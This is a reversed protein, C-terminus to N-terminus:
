SVIFFLVYGRGTVQAPRRLLHFHGQECSGERSLRQHQDRKMTFFAFHPIFVVDWTSEEVRGKEKNRTPRAAITFRGSVM